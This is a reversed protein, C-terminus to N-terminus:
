AGILREILRAECKARCQRSCILWLPVSCHNQASESNVTATGVNHPWHWTRIKSVGSTGPMPLQKALAAPAAGCVTWCYNM